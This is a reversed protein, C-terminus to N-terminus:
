WASGGGSQVVYLAVRLFLSIEARAGDFSASIFAASTFRFVSISAPPGSEHFSQLWPPLRIGAHFRRRQCHTFIIKASQVGARSPPPTGDM